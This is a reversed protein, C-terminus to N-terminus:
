EYMHIHFRQVTQKKPPKKLWTLDSFMLHLQFFNLEPYPKLEKAFATYWKRDPRHYKCNEIVLWYKMEIFVKNNAKLYELFEPTNHVPANALIEDYTMNSIVM